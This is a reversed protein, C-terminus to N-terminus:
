FNGNCCMWSKKNGFRRPISRKEIHIRIVPTQNTHGETQHNAEAGLQDRRKKSGGRHFFGFGVLGVLVSKANQKAQTAGTMQVMRASVGGAKGAAFARKSRKANM